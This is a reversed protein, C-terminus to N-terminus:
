PKLVSVVDHPTVAVIGPYRAFDAANLTLIHSLGAVQMMSVLRADHVALGQNQHQVLLQRWLRYAAPSEDLIRANREIFQVRLETTAVSKGYGGRASAPRTSVNWFEAINQPCAVLVHGSSRLSRLAERITTHDADSRDFLRLWVGTDVLYQM